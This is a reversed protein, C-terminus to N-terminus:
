YAGCVLFPLPHISKQNARKSQCTTTYILRYRYIYIANHLAHETVRTGHKISVVAFISSVFNFNTKKQRRTWLGKARLM